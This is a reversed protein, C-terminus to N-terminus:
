SLRNAPPDSLYQAARRLLDLQDRLFGIGSNCLSCLLGRVRDTQHDHDLLLPLTEQCIACVNGQLEELAQRYAERELTTLQALKPTSSALTSPLDVDVTSGCEAFTALCKSWLENSLHPQLQVLLRYAKRGTVQYTYGVADPNKTRRRRSQTVRGVGAAAALARLPEPEELWTVRLILYRSGSRNITRVQAYKSLMRGVQANTLSNM